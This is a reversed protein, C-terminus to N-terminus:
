QDMLSHITFEIQRASDNDECELEYIKNKTEIVVKSNEVTCKKVVATRIPVGDKIDYYKKQIGPYYSGEIVVGKHEKDYLVVFDKIVDLIM